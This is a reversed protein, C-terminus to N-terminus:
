FITLEEVVKKYGDYTEVPNIIKKNIGYLFIDNVSKINEFSVLFLSQHYLKDLVVQDKSSNYVFRYTKEYSVYRSYISIQSIDQFFLNEPSELDIPQFWKKGLPYCFVDNIIELNEKIKSPDNKLFFLFSLVYLNYSKSKTKNNRCFDFVFRYSKEYNNSFNNLFDM